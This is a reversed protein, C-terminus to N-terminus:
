TNGGYTIEVSRPADILLKVYNGNNADLGLGMKVNPFPKIEQMERDNLDYEYDMGAGHVKITSVSRSRIQEVTVMTDGIFVRNDKLLNVGLVYSM